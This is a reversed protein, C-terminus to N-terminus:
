KAKRPHLFKGLNQHPYQAVHVPKSAMSGVAFDQMQPKTMSARIKEAMPFTAGHEAAQILRQQARSKAPM